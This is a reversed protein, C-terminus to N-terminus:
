NQAGSAAPPPTVSTIAYRFPMKMGCRSHMRVSTAFITPVVHPMKDDSATPGSPGMTCMPAATADTMVVGNRVPENASSSCSALRRSRSWRGGRQNELHTQWGVGGGGRQYTYTDVNHICAPAFLVGRSIGM